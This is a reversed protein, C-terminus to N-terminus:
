KRKGGGKAGVIIQAAKAAGEALTRHVAAITELRAAILQTRADAELEELLYEMDISDTIIGPRHGRWRFQVPLEAFEEPKSM